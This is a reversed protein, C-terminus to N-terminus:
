VIRSSIDLRAVNLAHELGLYCTGSHNKGCRPCAQHTKKSSNSVGHRKFSGGSSKGKLFNGSKPKREEDSTKSLHKCNRESYPSSGGSRCINGIQVHFGTGLKKRLGQVGVPERARHMHVRRKPAEVPFTGKEFLGVFEGLCSEEKM